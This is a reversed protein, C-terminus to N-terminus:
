LRAVRERVVVLVHDSQHGVWATLDEHGGDSDCTLVHDKVHDMVHTM